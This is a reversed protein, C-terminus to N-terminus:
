VEIQGEGSLHKIKLCVRIISAPTKSPSLSASFNGNRRSDATASNETEENSSILIL